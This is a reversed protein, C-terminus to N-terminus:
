KGANEEFFAKVRENKELYEKFKILAEETWEQFKEFSIFKSFIPYQAIFMEYVKRLKLVGTGSGLYLEAQACAFILWEKIKQPETKAIFIAYIGGLILVILYPIYKILDQM